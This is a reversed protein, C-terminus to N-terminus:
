PNIPPETANQASDIDILSNLLDRYPFHLVNHLDVMLLLLFQPGPLRTRESHLRHKSQIHNGTDSGYTQPVHCGDMGQAKKRNIRPLQAWLWGVGRARSVQFSPSECCLM